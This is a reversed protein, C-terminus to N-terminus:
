HKSDVTQLPNGRVDVECLALYESTGHVHIKSIRVFRGILPSDCTLNEQTGAIGPFRSCLKRYAAPYTVPNFSTVEVVLNRLREPYNARNWLIVQTVEYAARLDVFWWTNTDNTATATCSTANTNGDVANEAGTVAPDGYESSQFAPKNLALNTEASDSFPCLLPVVFLLALSTMETPEALLTLRQEVQTTQRFSENTEKSTNPADRSRDLARRPDMWHM